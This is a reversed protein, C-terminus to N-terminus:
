PDQGGEPDCIPYIDSNYCLYRNDNVVTAFKCNHLLLLIIKHNPTLVVHPVAVNPLSLVLSKFHFRSTQM